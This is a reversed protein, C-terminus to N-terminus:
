TVTPGNNIRYDEKRPFSGLLRLRTSQVRLYFAGKYYGYGRCLQKRESCSLSRPSPLTTEVPVLAQEAPYTGSAELENM